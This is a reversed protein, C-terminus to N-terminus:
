VPELKKLTEFHVPTPKGGVDILLAGFDDIGIAKGMVEGRPLLRARVRRGITECRAKYAEMLDPIDDDYRRELGGLVADLVAERQFSRGTEILLSTAIDELAPPFEGAEVNLNIRYTLAAHVIKGPGLQADVKVGGLKRGGVYLDDPWKCMVSLGTGRELGDAAGLSALLWLLGEADPPIAPRLIVSCSLAKLGFTTWIPGKRQRASLEQDAVVTAGEPAEEQRAWAMALSEANVAVPYHRLDKGFRETTLAAIFTDAVGTDSAM